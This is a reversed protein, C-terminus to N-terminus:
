LYFEAKWIGWLSMGSSLEEVRGKDLFLTTPTVRIDLEQAITSAEVFTFPFRNESIFKRAEADSEFPNIAFIADRPIAGSEVSSRLRRMEVKCPGCWSAWFIAMARSDRPPFEVTRADTTSLVRLSRSRVEKGEHTLNARLVPLRQYVVLAIVALLFLNSRRSLWAKM